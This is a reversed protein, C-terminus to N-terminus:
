SLELSKASKAETQRLHTVAWDKLILQVNSQDATRASFTQRLLQRRETRNGREYVTAVVRLLELLELHQCRLAKPDPLESLERRLQDLEFDLGKSKEQYTAHDVVEDLLLDALRSKKAEREEIRASISTRKAKTEVVLQDEDWSRKLDYVAADSLQLSKLESLVAGELRDERISTMPCDKCQCRYYVHAKQREPVLPGECLACRFLGMFLHQHQTIKPSGRYRRMAQVRNYLDKSIIPQHIGPYTEGTREIKILGHYFPNGLLKEMGHLSIKGGNHNRLGLRFAEERLSEYSHDGTAYLEFMHAVIPATDPCPPKPKGRGGKLYGLPPRFPFLGQKLRGRLGKKTEDRQNRSFDAALAALMDAIFRGARSNFDTPDTAIHFAIGQDLLASVNGWDTMNRSGRDLKHLMLADAHGRKLRGAMTNFIPRGTKSATELEVFWETIQLGRQTAARSIEDKQVELSVGEGQKPTSVRVYGFCPIM